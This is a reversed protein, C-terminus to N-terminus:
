QAGGGAHITAPTPREDLWRLVASFGAHGLVLATESDTLGLVHCVDNIVLLQTLAGTPWELGASDQYEQVLNRLPNVIKPKM